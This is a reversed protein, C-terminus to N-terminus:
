VKHDINSESRRTAFWRRVNGVIHSMRSPGFLEQRAWYTHDSSGMIRRSLPDM